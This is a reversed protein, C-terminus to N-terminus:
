WSYQEQEEAFNEYVLIEVGQSTYKGQGTITSFILIQRRRYYYILIYGM